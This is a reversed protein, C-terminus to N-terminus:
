CLQAMHYAVASGIYGAGGTILITQQNKMTNHGFLTALNYFLFFITIRSKLQLKFIM